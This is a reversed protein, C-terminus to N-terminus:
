RVLRIGLLVQQERRFGPGLVRGERACGALLVWWSPVFPVFIPPTSRARQTRRPQDKKRLHPSSRGSMWWGAPCLAWGSCRRVRFRVNSWGVSSLQAYAEGQGTAGPPRMALSWAAAPVSSAPARRQSCLPTRASLLNRPCFGAVTRPGTRKCARGRVLFVPTSSGQLPGGSVVDCRM